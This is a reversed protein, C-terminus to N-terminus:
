GRLGVKIKNRSTDTNMPTGILAIQEELRIFVAQVKALKWGNGLYRPCCQKMERLFFHCSERFWWQSDVDGAEWFHDQRLYGMFALIGKAMHAFNAATIDTGDDGGPPIHDRVMDAIDSGDDLIVDHSPYPVAPHDQTSSRKKSRATKIEQEFRGQSESAKQSGGPDEPGVEGSGGGSRLIIPLLGGSSDDDAGGM